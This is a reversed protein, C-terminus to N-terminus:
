AVLRTDQSIIETSNQRFLTVIADPAPGLDFIDRGAQEAEMIEAKLVTELRAEAEMATKGQAVIDLEVGSAIFLEGERFVITNLTRSVEIDM